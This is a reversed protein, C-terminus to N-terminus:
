GQPDSPRSLGLRAYVDAPSLGQQRIDRLTAAKNRKALRKGTEDTILPHHLYVPPPADFLAYLLRHLGAADALDEGRIVHTVGQAIDDHVSALHYSTGSDKRGLVVDGFRDPDVQREKLTGDVDEAWCLEDFVSGLRDRCRRMDLRWAFPRGKGLLGQEEPARLPGPSIAAGLAGHPASTMKELEKRTRFCRYVLGQDILSQLREEYLAMRESQRWCPPDFELDLWGLDEHIAAEYEPRCRGPDIDEIRLHVLGSVEQATQVALIASYAHGLHLYGTPSPAFRTIFRM